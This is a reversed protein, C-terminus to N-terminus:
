KELATLDEYTERKRIYFDILAEPEIHSKKVPRLPGLDINSPFSNLLVVVRENRIYLFGVYKWRGSVVECPKVTSNKKM